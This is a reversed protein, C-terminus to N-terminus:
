SLPGEDHPEAAPQSSRLEPVIRVPRGSCCDNPTMKVGTRTLSSGGIDRRFGAYASVTAEFGRVAQENAATLGLGFEDCIM